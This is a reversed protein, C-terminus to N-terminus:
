GTKLDIKQNKSKFNATKINKTRLPQQQQKKEKKKKKIDNSKELVSLHKKETKKRHPIM